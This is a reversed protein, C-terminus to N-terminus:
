NRWWCARSCRALRSAGGITPCSMWGTTRRHASSRAASWTRALGIQHLEIVKPAGTQTAGTVPAITYLDPNPSRLRHAGCAVRVHRSAFSRRAYSMRRRRRTPGQDASRSPAVASRRAIPDLPTADNLQVLLRGLDRNFPTNDGYGSQLSLVLRNADTMTKQLGAAIDPLRKM